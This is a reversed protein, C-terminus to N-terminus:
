TSPAQDEHAVDVDQAAHPGLIKVVLLLVQVLGAGAFPPRAQEPSAESSKSGHRHVPLIWEIEEQLFTKQYMDYM